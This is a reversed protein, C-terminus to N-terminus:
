IMRQSLGIGGFRECVFVPQTTSSLHPNIHYGLDDFGSFDKINPDGKRILWRAFAGRAIKAHVVVFKPPSGPKIASLFRPTIVRSLDVYPLFYKDYEVSSVNVITGKPPFQDVISRGWFLYLNNFEPHSFRYGAELRYPNIGDYPRLIGYLGSLIALHDQAFTKESPSFELARLGSYIDGRFIEAAASLNRTASWRQFGEAVEVALSQSIHMCSQIQSITLGALYSHLHLTKELCRPSSLEGSPPTPVMTKSSHLLITLM